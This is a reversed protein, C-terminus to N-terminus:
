TKKINCRSAEDYQKGLSALKFALLFFIPEDDKYKKRRSLEALLTKLKKGLQYDLTM